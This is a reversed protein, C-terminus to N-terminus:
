EESVMVWESNWNVPATHQLKGWDKLANRIGPNHNYFATVIKQCKSFQLAVLVALIDSELYGTLGDICKLGIMAPVPIKIRKETECELNQIYKYDYKYRTRCREIIARVENVYADDYDDLLDNECVTKECVM